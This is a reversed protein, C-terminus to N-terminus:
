PTSAARAPAVRSFASASTRAFIARLLFASASVIFFFFASSPVSLTLSLPLRAIFAADGHRRAERRTTSGAKSAAHAVGGLGRSSSAYSISRM